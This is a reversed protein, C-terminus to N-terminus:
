FKGGHPPQPPYAGPYQPPAYQQGPYQMQQAMQNNTSVVTVGAPAAQQVVVPHYRRRCCVYIGVVIGIFVLVGIVTGATDGGGWSSYSYSCCTDSDDICCYDTCYNGGCNLGHIGTSCFALIITFVIYRITDM